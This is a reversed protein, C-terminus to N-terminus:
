EVGKWRKLSLDVEPEKDLKELLSGVSGPVPIDKKKTISMRQNRNIKLGEVTVPRTARYAGDREQIFSPNIDDVLKPIIRIEDGRELMVNTGALRVNAELVIVLEEAKNKRSTRM